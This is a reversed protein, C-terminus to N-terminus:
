CRQPRRHDVSRPQHISAYQGASLSQGAVIGVAALFIPLACSLSAVSYAVGFLFINKLGKGGGLNVGAIAAKYTMGKSLRLVDVLAETENEYNWM